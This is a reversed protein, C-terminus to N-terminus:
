RSSTNRELMLWSRCSGDARSEQNFITLRKLSARRRILAAASICGRKAVHLPPSSVETLSNSVLSVLATLLLINTLVVVVGCDTNAKDSHIHDSFGRPFTSPIPFPPELLSDLMPTILGPVERLSSVM